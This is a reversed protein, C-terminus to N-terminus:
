ETASPPTGRMAEIQKQMLLLGFRDAGSLGLTAIIPLVDPEKEISGDVRRGLVLEAGALATSIDSLLETAKPEIEKLSPTPGLGFEQYQRAVWQDRPQQPREFGPVAEQSVQTM